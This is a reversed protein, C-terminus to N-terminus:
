ERCEISKGIFAKNNELIDYFCTIFYDVFVSAAFKASFLISTVALVRPRRTLLPCNTGPTKNQADETKKPATKNHHLHLCQQTFHGYTNSYYLLVATCYNDVM